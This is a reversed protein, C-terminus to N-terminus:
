FPEFYPRIHNCYVLWLGVLILLAGASRKIMVDYRSVKSLNKGSVNIFYAMILIPIGLGMSYVFLLFGGYMIGGKLLVGMMITALIPGTCPIWVIGLSMGLLLGGAIGEKEQDVIIMRQISNFIPPHIRDADCYRTTYHYGRGWIQYVTSIFFIVPQFSGHDNWANFIDTDVRGCHCSAQVKGKWHFLGTYCTAVATYM